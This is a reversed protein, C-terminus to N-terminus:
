SIIVNLFISISKAIENNWEFNELWACVPAATWRFNDEGAQVRLKKVINVFSSDGFPNYYKEAENIENYFLDAKAVAIIMWSPKKSRRVSQRIKECIDSLDSLEQSLQYDKYKKLSDFGKEILIQKSLKERLEIFGNAVVYVIGDVPNKENFLSDLTEFRPTSSQGPVVTIAIRNKRTAVIKGEEREQSTLPPSYGAKYASYTLYDFLVTKGVGSM